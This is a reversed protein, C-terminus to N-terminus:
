QLQLELVPATGIELVGVADTVGSSWVRAVPELGCVSISRAQSTVIGLANAGPSAAGAQFFFSAGILAPQNPIALTFLASGDGLATQFFAAGMDISLYCSPAGVSALDQPLSWGAFSGSDRSGLVLTVMAGAPADLVRALWPRGWLVQTSASEVRLPNGVAPVCAPPGVAAATSTCVYTADLPYAGPPQGFVVVEILLPGLAPDYSFSQSLAVVPLFSQPVAATGGAPLQLLQRALVIIEDAGRNQAFVPGMATMAHPMTSMRIECDVLKGATTAGGDLRLRLGTITCPGQFLLSDYVSQVRTPTSRGFPVNTSTTGEAAAHSSPVVLPSQGSALSLLVALVIPIRM